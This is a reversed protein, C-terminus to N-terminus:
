ILKWNDLYLDNVNHKLGKGFWKNKAPAFIIKEPNTNLFSAWWSFSSNAIINHHCYSMLFLDQIPKNGEIFIFDKPFNKKCWEIDDSFVIFNDVQSSILEIADNYYKLNLNNHYESLGLYDTRRVHISCSNGWAAVLSNVDDQIWCDCRFLNRIEQECHGFYKRSQFYGYLDLQKHYPLIYHHFTREHHTNFKPIKNSTNFEGMLDNEFDFHPLIYKLKYKRAYGIVAAIQFMQNGIRGLEGLKSFTIM